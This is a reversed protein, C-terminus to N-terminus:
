IKEIYQNSPGNTLEVHEFIIQTQANAPPILVEFRTGIQLDVALSNSRTSSSLFMAAAPPLATRAPDLTEKFSVNSRSLQMNLRVPLLM